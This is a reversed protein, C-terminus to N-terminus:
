FYQSVSNQGCQGGSSSARGLMRAETGLSVVEAQEETLGCQSTLARSQLGSPRALTINKAIWFWTFMGM